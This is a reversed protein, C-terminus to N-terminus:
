SDGAPRRRPDDRHLRRLRNRGMVYTPLGSDIYGLLTLSGRLRAPTDVSFLNEHHAVRNRLVRLTELGAGVETLGQLGSPAGPFARHLCAEWLERQAATPATWGPSRLLQTWTGFMLQAVVDDHQPAAGHRPHEPPRADATRRADRRAQIIKRGIVTYLLPAAGQDRTWDASLARGDAATQSANWVRLERDMANRAAVEVHSLHSHWAGALDVGWLYLRAALDLDHVAATLYVQARAEGVMRTFPSIAAM